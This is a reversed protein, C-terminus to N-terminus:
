MEVTYFSNICGCLVSPEAGLHALASEGLERGCNGAWNGGGAVVAFCWDRGM